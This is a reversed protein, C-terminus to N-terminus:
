MPVALHNELGPAALEIARGQRAQAREARGIRAAARALFHGVGRRGDIARAHIRAGAAASEGISPHGSCHADTRHGLRHRELVPQKAPERLRDLAFDAIEHQPAGVRQEGVLECHHHVVRRLADGVHHTTRIQDIGGRALNMQLPQEAQRLGAVQVQGNGGARCALFKGFLGARPRDIRRLGRRAIARASAKRPWGGGACSAPAAGRSSSDQPISLQSIAFIGRSRLM